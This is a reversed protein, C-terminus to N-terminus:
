SAAPLGVFERANEHDISQVGLDAFLNVYTTTNGEQDWVMSSLAYQPEEANGDTGGNGGAGDNADAADESCAPLALAGLGLSATLTAKILSSGFRSLSNTRTM